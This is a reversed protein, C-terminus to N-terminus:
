SMMQILNNNYQRVMGPILFLDVLLWIAPILLVFVGIFIASLLFGLGTLILIAVATGTKGLYFRHAGLYGLFFLLLYAVGVSKKNADYTLVSRTQQSLKDIEAPPAGQGVTVGPATQSLDTTAM